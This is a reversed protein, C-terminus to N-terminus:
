QYMFLLVLDRIPANQSLRFILQLVLKIAASFRGTLTWLLLHVRAEEKRLQGSQHDTAVLRHVLQGKACRKVGVGPYVLLQLLKKSFTTLSESVMYEMNSAPPFVRGRVKNHYDLIALMDNQSIYRRKRIKAATDTGYGQAAGLGTFNLTSVAPISTRLASAGCSACLLVVLLQHKMTVFFPKCFDSSSIQFSLPSVTREM